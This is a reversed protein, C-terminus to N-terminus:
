GSRRDFGGGGVFGGGEVRRQPAGVIRHQRLVAYAAPGQHRRRRHQEGYGCSRPAAEVSPGSGQAERVHHEAGGQRAPRLAGGRGQREVPVARAQAEGEGGFTARRDCGALRVQRTAPRRVVRDIDFLRAAPPGFEDGASSYPPSASAPASYPGANRRM